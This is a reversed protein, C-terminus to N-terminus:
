AYLHEVLENMLGSVFEVSAIAQPYSMRTPGLVGVVGVARGVRGYPALILSVDQMELPRNEHGIFIQISGARAVAEVLSGLYARNELAAFVQRVKESRDFEPAAMVNLLGDSFLDDIVAGDFERMVRVLLEGVRLLIESEGGAGDGLPLDALAAEIEDATRDVALVNLLGAVRSLQDQDAPMSLNHLVQRTTGERFVVIMLALRDQVSLLEVRRVRAAKPKATTALGATGTNAAALTSAALRFWQESAFEVQGFQHRIMRQEVTPLSWEDALVQVYYRYGADTPVRGASTHPHTLLGLTELDALISRVTASSVGLPYHAVLSGSSVPVASTVFEDIVARLIAGSRADLSDNTRRPRRAM